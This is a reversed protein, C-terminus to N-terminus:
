SIQIWKEQTKDYKLTFSFHNVNNNNNLSFTKMFLPLNSSDSNKIELLNTKVIGRVDENKILLSNGINIIYFNNNSDVQLFNLDNNSSLDISLYLPLINFLNKSFDYLVILNNSIFYLYPSKYYSFNSSSNIGFVRKKTTFITYSYLITNSYTNIYIINNDNDYTLNTISGDNNGSSIVKYNWDPNSYIFLVPNINPSSDGQGGGAYLIGQNDIVIGYIPWNNNKSDFGLGLSIPLNFGSTLVIKGVYGKNNYITGIYLIDNHIIMSYVQLKFNTTGDTCFVWKSLHQPDSFDLYALTCTNNNTICGIYLKNKYFIIKTVNSNPYPINNIGGYLPLPIYKSEQIDYCTIYQYQITEIGQQITGSNFCGSFIYRESSDLCIMSYYEETSNPNIIEYNEIGSIINYYHPENEQPIPLKFNYLDSLKDFYATYTMNTNHRTAIQVSQNIINANNEVTSQSVQNAIEQAIMEADEYSNKSTATASSTSTVKDGTSTYIFASSTAEAKFM